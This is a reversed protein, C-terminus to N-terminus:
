QKTTQQIHFRPGLLHVLDPLDLDRLIGPVIMGAIDGHMKM